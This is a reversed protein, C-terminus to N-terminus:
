NRCLNPNLPFLYEREFFFAFSSPSPSPLSGKENECQIGVSSNFLQFIPFPFICIIDPSPSVDRLRPASSLHRENYVQLVSKVCSSFEKNSRRGVACHRPVCAHFRPSVSQEREMRSVIIPPLRSFPTDRRNNCLM